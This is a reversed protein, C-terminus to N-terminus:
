DVEYWGQFTSYLWLTVIFLILVGLVSFAMKTQRDMQDTM